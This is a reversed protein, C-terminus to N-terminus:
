IQQVPQPYLIFTLYNRRVGFNHNKEKTGSGSVYDWLVWEGNQQQIFYGVLLVTILSPLTVPQDSCFMFIVKM